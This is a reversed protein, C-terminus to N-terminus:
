LPSRRIHNERTRIWYVTYQLFQCARSSIVSFALSNSKLLRIRPGNNYVIKSDPSALVTIFRPTLCRHIKTSLIYEAAWWEWPRDFTQFTFPIHIYMRHTQSALRFVQLYNVYTAPSDYISLLYEFCFIAESHGIGM